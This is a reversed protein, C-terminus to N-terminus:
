IKPALYSIIETGHKVTKSHRCYLENRSRLSYPNNTNVQFINKMISPSLGDLFMYLENM